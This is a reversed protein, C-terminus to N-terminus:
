AVQVSFTANVLPTGSSDFARLTVDPGAIEWNVYACGSEGPAPVVHVPAFAGSVGYADPYSASFTLTVAGNGLRSGSPFGTPPTDGEYSSATVGTNLRAWNITPPDAGSDNCTISLLAFAATRACEAVDEVLRSFQEATIDTKPNIAGLSQYNAKDLDGGYSTFDSSRVWIPDGNPVVTM